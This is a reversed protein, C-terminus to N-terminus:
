ALRECARECSCASLSLCAASSFEVVLADDNSSIIAILPAVPVSGVPSRNERSLRQGREQESEGAAGHHSWLRGRQHDRGGVRRRDIPQETLVVACIHGAGRDHDDLVAAHGVNSAVPQGLELRVGGDRFARFKRRAESVLAKVAIATM